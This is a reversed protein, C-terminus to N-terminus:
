VEFNDWEHKVRDMLKKFREEGRISELFPDKEALFPYNIFGRNIANELWAFSEDTKGILSYISAIMWPMQWQDKALSIAEPTLAGSAQETRGKLANILFSAFQGFISDPTDRLIKELIECAEDTRRAWALGFGYAWRTYPSEPDMEYEKQYGDVAKEFNGSYYEIWCPNMGSWPEVATLKNYYFRAAEIKGSIGCIVTIWLLATSNNPTLKYARKLHVLADKTKGKHFLILGKLAHGEPSEPNLEFVKAAYSEAKVLVPEVQKLPLPTCYHTYAQGMTAYLLENPGEIRLARELLLIANDIADETWSAMKQKARLYCEYVVLDKIPREAIHRDEEPSLKLKLENVISRSVKEQIDFIDDLTGSYKEAWLHADTKAEILQATIRLNNGAKRVSGELVYQVNLERGIDKIKKKTGKYTMASSRSIVMLDHIKSLDSIIEETLGDSFYENDKNPSMDDFPLVIISKDKIVEENPTPVGLQPASLCGISITYIKVLHDVNKLKKEDLFVANIGPQNRVSRYVEESTCICGTEALREIRSAVNVGDGFIDGEKFVIDGLHIGIRLNLDPDNQVSHQIEMACRVADLASQFCLLTGDGMEKLFEGHHKKALSKQLDRNKQLLALAKQEDKSMLATYGVIDTFMVAALKRIETM